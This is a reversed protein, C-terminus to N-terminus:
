HTLTLTVYERIAQYRYGRYEGDIDKERWVRAAYLGSESFTTTMGNVDTRFLEVQESKPQHVLVMTKALPQGDNVVRFAFGGTRTVTEIRLGKEKTTNSKAQANSWTASHTIYVSKGSGRRVVRYPAALSVEVVEASPLTVIAESPSVTELMLPDTKGSTRQALPKELTFAEMSADPDVNPEDSLVLRLETPTKGPILYFFHAQASGVGCLILMGVSLSIKM